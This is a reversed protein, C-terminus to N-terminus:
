SRVGSVRAILEAGDHGSGCRYSVIAGRPTNLIGKLDTPWILVHAECDECWVRMM